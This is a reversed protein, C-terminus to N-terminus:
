RDKGDKFVGVTSPISHNLYWSGQLRILNIQADYVKNNLQQRVFVIALGEEIEVNSIFYDALKINQNLKRAEEKSLVKPMSPLRVKRYQEDKIARQVNKPFYRDDSYIDSSSKSELQEGSLSSKGSNKEASIVEWNYYKLLAERTGKEKLDILIQKSLEAPTQAELVSSSLIISYLICFISTFIRIIGESLFIIYYYMYWIAM